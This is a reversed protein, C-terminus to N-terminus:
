PLVAGLDYTGGVRTAQNFDRLVPVTAGNDVPYGSPKWDTLAVPPTAVFSPNTSIGGNNDTNNSTTVNTPAATPTGINRSVGKYSNAPNHHPNYWINNKINVSDVDVFQNVSCSGSGSLTLAAGGNTASLTFTNATHNTATVWYYTGVTLEPPVTGSVRVRFGVYLKHNTATFVGPTGAAWTSTVGSGIGNFYVFTHNEANYMNSYLTNNYVNVNVTPDNTSVNIQAFSLFTNGYASTYSATRDGIAFDAINNRVTITPCGISIFLLSSRPWGECARTINNEIIGNRV